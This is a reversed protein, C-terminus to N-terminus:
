FGETGGSNSVLGKFVVAEATQIIEGRSFCPILAVLPYTCLVIPSSFGEELQTWLGRVGPNQIDAQTGFVTSTVFRNTRYFVGQTNRIDTSFMLNASTNVNEGPFEGSVLPNFSINKQAVCKLPVKKCFSEEQNYWIKKEYSTFEISNYVIRMSHTKRIHQLLVADISAALYAADIYCREYRSVNEFYSFVFPADIVSGITDYQDLFFDTKRETIVLEHREIKENDGINAVALPYLEPSLAFTTESNVRTSSVQTGSGTLAARFQAVAERLTSNRLTTAEAGPLTFANRELVTFALPLSSFVTFFNRNAATATNETPGVLASVETPPEDRGELDKESTIDRTIIMDEQPSSTDFVNGDTKFLFLGTSLVPDQQNFSVANTTVAATDLNQRTQPLEFQPQNIVALWAQHFKYTVVKLYNNSNDGGDATIASLNSSFESSSVPVTLKVGNYSGTFTQVVGKVSVFLLYLILRAL